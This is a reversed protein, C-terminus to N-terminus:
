ESPQFIGTRDVYRKGTETKEITITGITRPGDEKVRAPIEVIERPGNSKHLNWMNDGKAEMAFSKMELELADPTVTCVLYDQTDVVKRGWSSGHVLQWVGDSEKVTVAHHEGCLYVDVGGDVMAQWFASDMGDELMIKSSSRSAVPGFIPVHGQVIIHDADAHERLVNRFWELQEGTVSAHLEGDREEFTEVTVILANKHRVYYALGKKHEPGNQPMQMHKDFVREFDPVLALKDAPWPDDGLEHDGIAVYYTLGHKDMRRKWGEYYLAGMQEVCKPGDWWHGNVMDGAVLVFDPAEAEVQELYWDVAEDWEAWPEPVDFNFFDPMSVFTWEDGSEQAGALGCVFVLVIASVSRAIVGDLRM